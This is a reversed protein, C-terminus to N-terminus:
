RQMLLILVKRINTVVCDELQWSRIELGLPGCIKYCLLKRLATFM